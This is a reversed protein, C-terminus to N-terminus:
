EYNWIPRVEITGTEASPIKAAWELAEERSDCDVLYFGILQEKTEAFPGDTTAVGGDRVQLSTATAVMDLPKGSVWVGAEQAANTMANYREIRKKHDESPMDRRVAEDEYILLLYEM